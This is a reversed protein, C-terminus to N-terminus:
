PLIDLVVALAGRIDQILQNELQGLKRVFREQSLSRVQFTDATSVKILGNDKTPELKVMWPYVTYRDKWDTIPVIVKLPLIGIADNSVIVVPRIKGIENGVIPNLQVLWIEGRHM